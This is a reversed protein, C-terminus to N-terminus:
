QPSLEVGLEPVAAVEDTQLREVAGHQQNLPPARRGDQMPNDFHEGIGHGIGPDHLEIAPMSWVNNLDVSEEQLQLPEVGVGSPLAGLMRRHLASLSRLPPAGAPPPRVFAQLPGAGVMRANPQRGSAAPGQLKM